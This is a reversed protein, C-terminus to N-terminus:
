VIQAVSTYCDILTTVAPDLGVEDEKDGPHKCKDKVRPVSVFSLLSILFFGKKKLRKEDNGLEHCPCSERYHCPRITKSGQDLKFWM